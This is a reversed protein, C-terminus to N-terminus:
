VHRVSYHRWLKCLRQMSVVAIFFNPTKFRSCSEHLILPVSEDDHVSRLMQNRVRSNRRRVSFLGFRCALSPVPRYCRVNAAFFCRAVSPWSSTTCCLCPRTFNQMALAKICCEHAVLAPHLGVCRMNYNLKQHVYWGSSLRRSCAECEKFGNGDIM